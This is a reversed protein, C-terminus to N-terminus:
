KAMRLHMSIQLFQQAKQVVAIATKANIINNFSTLTTSEEYHPAEYSTSRV